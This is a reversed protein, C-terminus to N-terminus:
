STPCHKIFNHTSQPMFMSRPPGARDTHVSQTTLPYNARVTIASMVFIPEAQLVTFADAIQQPFSTRLQRSYPRLCCTIFPTFSSRQDQSTLADALCFRLPPYM